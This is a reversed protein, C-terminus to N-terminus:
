TVQTIIVEVSGNGNIIVPVERPGTILTQINLTKSENEKFVVPGSLTLIVSTEIYKDLFNKAYFSVTTEIKDTTKNYIDQKFDAMLICPNLESLMNIGFNTTMAYFRNLSDFGIQCFVGNYRYTEIFKQKTEDFSYFLVSDPVWIVLHKSDNNYVFSGLCGKEYKIVDVITFSNGNFKLLILAHKPCYNSSNDYTIGPEGPSHHILISFYVNDNTVIKRLTIKDEIIYYTRSEHNDYINFGNDNIDLDTTNVQNTTTNLSIRRIKFVKNSIDKIVIYFENNYKIVNSRIINNYYGTASDASGSTQLSTDSWITKGSLDSLNYKVIFHKNEDRIIYLYFINKDILIPFIYGSNAIDGLLSVISLDSKNIVYIKTAYYAFLGQYRIGCNDYQNTTLVVLYNETQHIVRIDGKYYNNKGNTNNELAFRKLIEYKQNDKDYKIKCLMESKSYNYSGPNTNNYAYFNYDLIEYFIDPNYKDQIIRSINEESNECTNDASYYNYDWHGTFYGERILSNKLGMALRDIYPYSFFKMPLPKLTQKDYLQTNIILHNPTEIIRPFKNHITSIENIIQM